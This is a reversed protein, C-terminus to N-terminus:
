VLDDSFDTGLVDLGRAHQDPTMHWEFGQDGPNWCTTILDNRWLTVLEASTCLLTFAEVAQSLQAHNLEAPGDGLETLFRRYEDDSLLAHPSLEGDTVAPHADSMHHEMVEPDGCWTDCFDCKRGKQFVGLVELEDLRDQVDAESLGTGEAIQAITFGHRTDEALARAFDIISATEADVQISM